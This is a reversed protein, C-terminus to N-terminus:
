QLFRYRTSSDIEPQVDDLSTGDGPCRDGDGRSVVVDDVDDDDDQHHDDYCRDDQMKASDVVDTALNSDGSM